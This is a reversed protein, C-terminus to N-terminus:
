LLFCVMFAMGFHNVERRNILCFILIGLPFGAVGVKLVPLRDFLVQVLYCVASLMATQLLAYVQVWEQLAKEKGTLWPLFTRWFALSGAPDAAIGACLLVLLVALCIVRSRVTIGNMVTLMGLVAFAVIFHRMGPRDIGLCSEAGLLVICILLGANVARYLTKERSHIWRKM